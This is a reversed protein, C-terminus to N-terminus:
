SERRRCPRATDSAPPSDGAPADRPGAPSASSALLAKADRAHEVERMVFAAALEEFAGAAEHEIAHMADGIRAHRRAGIQIHEAIERLLEVVVDDREFRDIRAARRDIVGVHQHADTRAEGRHARFADALVLAAGHEVGQARGAVLEDLEAELLHGREGAVHEFQARRAAPLTTAIDRVARSTATAAAARLEDFPEAPRDDCGGIGVISVSPPPLTRQM